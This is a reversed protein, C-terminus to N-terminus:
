GTVGALKREFATRLGLDGEALVRAAGLVVCSLPDDVAYAPMGTAHHILRDIGRLLAGGGVLAIGREMIDASLEPPTSELALKVEDLIALIPEGIAERVAGSSLTVQAPLGSVLDRGRVLYELEKQMPWVSGIALKIAEATREGIHLNHVQRAYTVIAQDIEDGGVRITRALVVDGLSIIAVETTGGGIDVVMSGNAEHIPLGAGIAAAIPEEIVWAEKAGAKRAADKVARCEVETVGAPVGILMHPHIFPRRRYVREIFLTLMQEASEFDAIVGDRLPRITEIADPTRGLMRKAEEGVARVQESAREFAIVSPERLLIGKGRVHILTNATGLDIAMEPTWRQFIRTLNM